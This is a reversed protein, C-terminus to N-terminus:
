AVVVHRDLRDSLWGAPYAFVTYTTYMAAMTMPLYVEAIGVDSARLVLFAESFRALTFISGVVLISLYAASFVVWQSWRMPVHETGPATQLPEDVFQALIAVSVIAPVVAVWFVLRFNGGTALMLVTALLPGTLAGVTDLTQRLGYSAGRLE